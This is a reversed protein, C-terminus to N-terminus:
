RGKKVNKVGTQNENKKKPKLPSHGKDVLNSENIYFCGVYARTILQRVEGGFVSFIKL